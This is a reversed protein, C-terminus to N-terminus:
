LCINELFNNNGRFKPPLLTYVKLIKNQVTHCFFGVVLRTNNKIPSKKFIIQIMMVSLCKLRADKIPVRRSGWVALKFCPHKTLCGKGIYVIAIMWKFCGNSNTTESELCKRPHQKANLSLRQDKKKAHSSCRYQHSVKVQLCPQRAQFAGLPGVSFSLSNRPVM